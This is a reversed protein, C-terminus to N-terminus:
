CHGFLYKSERDGDHHNGRTRVRQASCVVSLPFLYTICVSTSPRPAAVRVAPCTQIWILFSDLYLRWTTLKSYPCDWLSAEIKLTTNAITEDRRAYMCVGQAM